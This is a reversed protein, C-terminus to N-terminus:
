FSYCGESKESIYNYMELCGSDAAISFPSWEDSLFGMNQGNLWYQNGRKEYPYVPQSFQDLALALKKVIKVPAQYLVKKWQDQFDAMNEAYKSIRRIWKLKKADIFHGWSKSVKRCNVFSKDDLEKLISEAIYPFRSIIVGLDLERTILVNKLQIKEEVAAM